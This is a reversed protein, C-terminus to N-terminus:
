QEGGTKLLEGLLTRIGRGQYRERLLDSPSQHLHRTGEYRSLNASNMFVHIPHFDLQWCMPKAEPNGDSFLSPDGVSRYLEVYDEWALPVRVLGYHIWPRLRLSGSPEVYHTADHTLGLAAYTELIRSSQLLSHARVSKADPVIELLREIVERVTAGNKTDAELLANFNPHIGIEVSSDAQLERLFPSRHTIFWTSPVGTGSLLAYTDRMVDDHAWDMDVTLFTRGAYTEENAVIVESIKGWKLNQM